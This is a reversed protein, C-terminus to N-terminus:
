GGAVWSDFCLSVGLVVEVGAGAGIREEFVSLDCGAGHGDGWAGFPEVSLGGEGVTGVVDEVAAGGGAFDVRGGGDGVHERALGVEEVAELADAGGGGAGVEVALAAGGEVQREVVADPAATAGGGGVDVAVVVGVIAM